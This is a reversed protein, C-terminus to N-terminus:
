LFAAVAANFEKPKEVNSLHAADKIIVLKANPLARSMREADSPPTITDHEGAIVLVPMQLTPLLPASDPRDAMARLAAIIGEPTSTEIIKRVKDVLPQPANKMLLKPLMADAAASVGQQKVKEILEFRGKRGDPSDAGERTDILILRSMRKKALRAIALCIYGGMSSGAFLAQDIGREDLVALVARAYSDMTAEAGASPSQGFGPLDPVLHRVGPISTQGAFIASSTPFAHVWVLPTGAGTDVTHLTM